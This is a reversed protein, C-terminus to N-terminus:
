SKVDERRSVYAKADVEEYGLSGYRRGCTYTGGDSYIRRLEDAHGHPFGANPLAYGLKFGLKNM